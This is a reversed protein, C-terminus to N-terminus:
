EGGYLCLSSILLLVGVFFYWLIRKIWPFFGIFSSQQPSGYQQQQDYAFPNGAYTRYPPPRPVGLAGYDETRRSRILSSSSTTTAVAELLLGVAPSERSRRQRGDVM